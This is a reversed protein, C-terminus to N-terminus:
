FYGLKNVYCQKQSRSALCAKTQAEVEAGMSAILSQRSMLDNMSLSADAGGSFSQQHQRMSTSPVAQQFPPSSANNTPGTMVMPRSTLRAFSRELLVDTMADLRMTSNPATDVTHRRSRLSPSHKQAQHQHIMNDNQRLANVAAHVIGETVSQVQADSYPTAKAANMMQMQSQLLQQQRRLQNNHFCTSVPASMRGLNQTMTYNGTLLHPSSISAMDSLTARRYKPPLTTNVMPSDAYGVMQGQPTGQQPGPQQLYSIQDLLINGGINSEQLLRSSLLNEKVSPFKLGLNSHQMKQRPQITQTAVTQTSAVRGLIAADSTSGTSSDPPTVSRASTSTSPNTRWL